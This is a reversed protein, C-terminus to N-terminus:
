AGSKAGGLCFNAEPPGFGACIPPKWSRRAGCASNALISSRPKGNVARGGRPTHLLLSALGYIFVAVFRTRVPPSSFGGRRSYGTFGPWKSGCGRKWHIFLSFFALASFVGGCSHGAFCLRRLAPPTKKTGRKKRCVVGGAGWVGASEQRVTGTSTAALLCPRSPRGLLLVLFAGLAPRARVGGL